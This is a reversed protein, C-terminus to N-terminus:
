NPSWNHAITTPMANQYQPSFLCQTLPVEDKGHVLSGKICWHPESRTNQGETFLTRTQIDNCACTKSPGRNPVHIWFRKPDTWERCIQDRIKETPKGFPSKSLRQCSAKWCFNDSRRLLTRTLNESLPFMHRRIDYAYFDLWICFWQRSAYLMRLFRSTEFHPSAFSWQLCALITFPILACM